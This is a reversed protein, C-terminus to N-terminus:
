TVLIVYYIGQVPSDVQSDLSVCQLGLIKELTAGHEKPMDPRSFSAEGRAILVECIKEAVTACQKACCVRLLHEYTAKSGHLEKWERLVAQRILLPTKNGKLDCIRHWPIELASSLKEEWEIMSAAIEDLDKNVGKNDWDLVRTLYHQTGEPIRSVYEDYDPGPNTEVDGALLLLQLRISRGNADQIIYNIMRVGCCKQKLPFVVRTLLVGESPAHTM